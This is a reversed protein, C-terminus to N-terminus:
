DTGLYRAVHHTAFGLGRYLARAAVNDTEVHLWATSVGREAAVELLDDMVLGALGRRRHPEAVHLAHLGVWDGDIGARGSALLEEGRRVEALVRPGDVELTIRAGEPLSGGIARRARRVRALSALEFAAEGGPYPTWGHALFWEETASGAEVQVLPRRERARYFSRVEAEAESLPRDPEGMALCSNARKLPRGVPRPVSRLVWDGLAVQDVDPWLALAHGEAERVGVRHRVSPRPPVPKGSVIDALAIVVPEGDEPAITCTGAEWATCVGLLDTMAPGGSPGTEGRLLRRVVVRQGVVHPGLRHQGVPEATAPSTM